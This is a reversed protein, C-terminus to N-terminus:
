SSCVECDHELDTWFDIPRKLFKVLALWLLRMNVGPFATHGERLWICGQNQKAGAQPDYTSRTTTTIEPKTIPINKSNAHAHLTKMAKKM